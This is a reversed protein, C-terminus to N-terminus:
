QYIREVEINQADKRRLSLNYNKIKIELPDGLPAINKIVFEEGKVIGMDLLRKKTTADSKIKLIRGSEGKKLQILRM